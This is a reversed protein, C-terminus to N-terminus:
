CRHAGTGSNHTAHRRARLTHRARSTRSPAYPALTANSIIAIQHPAILPPMPRVEASQLTLQSTTEKPLLPRWEIPLEAKSNADVTLSPPVSVEPNNVSATFTVPTPLPNSLPLMHSTLQRLPAQLAISDLVGAAEAKLSLKYYIYEGTKDNIFHVEANYTGEKFAYFAM